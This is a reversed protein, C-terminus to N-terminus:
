PCRSVRVGSSRFNDPDYFGTATDRFYTKVLTRCENGYKVRLVKERVGPAVLETENTLDRSAAAAEDLAVKQALLLNQRKLGEVELRVTSIEERVASISNASIRSATVAFVVLAFAAVALAAYAVSRSPDPLSKNTQSGM